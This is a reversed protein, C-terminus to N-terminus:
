SHADHFEDEENTETDYRRLASNNAEPDKPHSHLLKSPPIGKQQDAELDILSKSKVPEKPPPQPVPDSLDILDGLTEQKTEPKPKEQPEPNTDVLSQRTPVKDLSAHRPINFPRHPTQGPLIAAIQLIQKIQEQPSKGDRPVILIVSASCNATEVYVKSAIIWDLDEEGEESGGHGGQVRRFLQPHWDVGENMRRAAEERQMDEIRSKEDTAGEHDKRGLAQTVNIWLKQSEREDQEELPRVKPPTHKAHTADFLLERKGTQQSDANAGDTTSSDSYICNLFSANGGLRQDVNRREM